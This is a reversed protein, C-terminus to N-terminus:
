ADDGKYQRSCPIQVQRYARSPLSRRLNGLTMGTRGLMEVIKAAAFMGDFHNQFSSLAFRGDMSATMLGGRESVAELLSRADNKVSRFTLGGEQAVREMAMPASVPLVLNGDRECRSVLSVVVGLAEIESLLVGGEDIMRLQEGSPDLWFGATAELTGVIRALQEMARATQEPQLASRGAEVHSNLEIVECGLDTLLGPLLEGAPSHNLDIVVKPAFSRILPADLARM